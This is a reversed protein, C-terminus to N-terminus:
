HNKRINIETSLTNIEAQTVELEKLKTEFEMLDDHDGRSANADGGEPM